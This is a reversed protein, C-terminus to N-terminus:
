LLSSLRMNGKMAALSPPALASRVSVSADLQQAPRRVYFILKLAAVPLGWHSRAEQFGATTSGTGTQSEVTVESPIM